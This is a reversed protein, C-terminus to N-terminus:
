GFRRSVRFRFPLLLSFLIHMVKTPCRDLCALSATWTSIMGAATHRLSDRISFVCWWASLASNQFVNDSRTSKNPHAVLDPGIETMRPNTCIDAALHCQIRLGLPSVFCTTKTRDRTGLRSFPLVSRIHTTRYKYTRKKELDYKTRPLSFRASTAGVRDAGEYWLVLSRFQNYNRRYRCFQDGAGSYAVSSDFTSSGVVYTHYTHTKM